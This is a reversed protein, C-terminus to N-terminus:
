EPDCCGAVSISRLLFARSARLPTKRVEMLYLSSPIGATIRFSQLLRDASLSELYRANIEEQEQSIARSLRLGREFGRWDRSNGSFRPQFPAEYRNRVAPRSASIRASFPMVHNQFRDAVASTHTGRYIEFSNAIGYKDFVEHLKGADIRLGDQFRTSALMGHQIHVAIKVSAAAVEILM